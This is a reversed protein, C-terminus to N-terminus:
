LSLYFYYIVTGIILFPGFPIATKLSSKGKLLKPISYLLGLISATFLIIFISKLGFIFGLGSLLKADGLGMAEVNKIKKYLFIIIWILLYGAAGGILSQFMDQNLNLSTAPLFNKLIGILILSFNLSDPIIYYKIDIVFIVIFIYFILSILILDLFNSTFSLAASLFLASVLEVIFYQNSISKKCFRCKLKLILFSILPINDFWKIKKKCQPCFSRKSVIDLNKPLRYICVNLFSGIVAGIIFLFFFNNLLM